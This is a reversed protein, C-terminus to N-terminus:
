IIRRKCLELPNPSFHLLPGHRSPRARSREAPNLIRLSDRPHTVPNPFPWNWNKKGSNHPRPCGKFIMFNHPPPRPPGQSSHNTQKNICRKVDMKYCALTKESVSLFEMKLFSGMKLNRAIMTPHGKCNCLSPLPWCQRLHNGQYYVPNLFLLFNICNM